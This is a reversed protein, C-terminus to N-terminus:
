AVQILRDWHAQYLVAALVSVTPTDTAPRAPAACPCTCASARTVCGGQLCQASISQKSRLLQMHEASPRRRQRQQTHVKRWRQCGACAKHAQFQLRLRAGRVAWAECTGQRAATEQRARFSCGQDLTVRCCHERTLLIGSQKPACKGDGQRDSHPLGGASGSCCGAESRAHLPAECHCCVRNSPQRVQRRQPPQVRRVHHRRLLRRGRQILKRREGTRRQARRRVLVGRRRASPWHLQQHPAESLANSFVGPRAARHFAQLTWCQHPCCTSVSLLEVTSERSLNYPALPPLRLRNLM